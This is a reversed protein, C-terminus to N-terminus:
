AAIQTERMVRTAHITRLTGEPDGVIHEYLLRLTQCGAQAAAADREIDRKMQTIRAHWKRGDAELILRARDYYCDVLGDLSRGPLPVQLRPLPEGGRRLLELLSRELQSGPVAPGPQHRALVRVITGLGPKGPRAVAFVASAVADLTTVRSSLAEELAYNLRGPKAVRSLDVFTRPVTSVVLGKMTEIQDPRDFMDSIQHLRVDTLRHHDHRPVTLVVGAGAFGALGHLRAAAEHSVACPRRAALFGAWTRRLFSDRSGYIAFVGPQVEEWQADPLRSVTRRPIGLALLQSRAVAGHQSRVLELLETTAKVTAWIPSRYHCDVSSAQPPPQTPWTRGM